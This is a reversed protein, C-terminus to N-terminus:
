FTDTNAVGGLNLNGPTQYWYTVTPDIKQKVEKIAFRIRELEGSLSTPQNESGIEGPDTQIQMEAVNESFDDVNEPKGVNLYVNQFEANYNAATLSGNPVPVTYIQSVPYPM